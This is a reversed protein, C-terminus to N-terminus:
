KDSESMYGSGNGNGNTEKPSEDAAAPQVDGAPDDKASYTGQRDRVKHKTRAM